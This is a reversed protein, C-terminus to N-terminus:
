TILILLYVFLELLLRCLVVNIVQSHIFRYTRAACDRYGGELSAGFIYVTVIHLLLVNAYMNIYVYSLYM